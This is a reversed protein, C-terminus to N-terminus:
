EPVGDAIQTADMRLTGNDNFIVGTFRGLNGEPGNGTIQTNSDAYDVVQQPRTILTAQGPQIDFQPFMDYAALQVTYTTFGGASSTSLVTGNITQPMLTVTTAPTYSGGNPIATVHRTIAANQGPM